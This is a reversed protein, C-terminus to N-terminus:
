FIRINVLPALKQSANRGKRELNPDFTGKTDWKSCIQNKASAPAITFHSSIAIILNMKPTSHSFHRFNLWKLSAGFTIIRQM